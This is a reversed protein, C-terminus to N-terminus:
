SKIIDTSRNFLASIIDTRAHPYPKANERRTAGSTQMM